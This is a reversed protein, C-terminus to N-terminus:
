LRKRKSSSKIGLEERYKAVTRRSINMNMDNLKDCINQDSIPKKKNEEDILKKIANKINVTSIDESFGNTVIGQTFFKKIKIIGKPTYVYKDRIARSITSEHLNLEEAVEKLTMPHLHDEGYDLSDKQKEVIKELVRYITSKRSEVSKMLFMASNMKDKVYKVADKDKDMNLIEKYISNVSLKPALSDNMIIFYEGDINRIYADPAIYKTEEGNYFGRSPKPELKKIADGYNQAEKATIKLSKAINAYRNEAIDELHNDIIELLNEDFVGKCKLQIKLCEKLDRAGVGYPELSQIIYLIDEMDDESIHLEEALNKLPVSLYGKEDLSNIIYRCLTKTYEDKNLELVQEELFEGFSKQNSIFQFPSVEDSNDYHEYSQSGYNDFELFKVLEKYDIDDKNDKGTLDEYKADLVPNEQIEKDIYEQLEIGSMQLIKVSLQMQQTMILKQEQTINLNFDMRMKAVGESSIRDSIAGNYCNHM